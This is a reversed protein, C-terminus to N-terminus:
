YFYSRNIARQNAILKNAPVFASTAAPSFSAIVAAIGYTADGITWTPNEASAAGSQIKYSMGCYFANAAIAGAQIVSAWGSVGSVASSFVAANACASIVLSNPQSPTVSGAAVSLGASVAGNEHGDYPDTSLLNSFSIVTITPYSGNSGTVGFGHNADVHSGDPFAYFLRIRELGETQATRPFWTCGKTDVPVGASVSTYDALALAIFNAGLTSQIAKNTYPNTDTSAYGSTNVVTISPM